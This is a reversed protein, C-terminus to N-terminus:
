QDIKKKWAELGLDVSFQFFENGPEQILCFVIDLMKSRYIYSKKQQQRWMKLIFEYPFYNSEEGRSFMPWHQSSDFHLFELQVYFSM